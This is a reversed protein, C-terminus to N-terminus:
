SQRIAEMIQEASNVPKPQGLSEAIEAPFEAASDGAVLPGGGPWYLMVPGMKLIALVSQWLRLDGCPRDVYLSTILEKGLGVSHSCNQLFERPRLPSAM